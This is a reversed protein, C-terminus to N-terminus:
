SGGEFQTVYFPVAAKEDDGVLVVFSYDGYRPFPVNKLPFHVYTSPRIGERPSDPVVFDTRVANIREDGELLQLEIQRKRGVEAPGASFGLVLNLDPQVFPVAGLVMGTFIGLIDVTGDASRKFEQAIVAM